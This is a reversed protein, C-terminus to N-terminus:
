RKPLAIFVLGGQPVVDAGAVVLPTVAGTWANLSALYNPPVGPRPVDRARRQIRM